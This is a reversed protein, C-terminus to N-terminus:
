CGGGFRRLKDAPLGPRWALLVVSIATSFRFPFSAEGSSDLTLLLGEGSEVVSTRLPDVDGRNSRVFLSQNSAVDGACDFASVDVSTEGQVLSGATLPSQAAVLGVPGAPSGNDEGIWLTTRDVDACGSSDVVVLTGSHVGVGDASFSGSTSTGRVSGEETRFHYMAIPSGGAMSGLFDVTQSAPSGTDCLVMEDSSTADFVANAEPGDLCEAVVADLARQHWFGVSSDCFNSRRIRSSGM